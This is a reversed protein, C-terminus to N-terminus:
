LYGIGLRPTKREAVIEEPMASVRCLHLHNSTKSFGTNLPFQRSCHAQMLLCKEFIRSNNVYQHGRSALLAMRHLFFARFSDHIAASYCVKM